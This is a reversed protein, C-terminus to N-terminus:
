GAKLARALDILDLIRAIYHDRIAFTRGEGALLERELADILRNLRRQHLGLKAQLPDTLIGSFTALLAGSALLGAVVSGGVLFPVGAMPTLALKTALAEGMVKGLSVAGPTIQHFFAAGTGAAILANALDAVAVRSGAYSDIARSLWIQFGAERGRAALTEAVEGLLGEVRRDTFLALALADFDSQRGPQRYPLQLFDHLLRWEIERGVDTQFFFKRAKLWDSPGQWGLRDAAAGATRAALFPVALAVNAPARWLDHGLAKRHLQLSARLSYLDQVFDEVRQRRQECYRRVADAFVQRTLAPSLSVSDLPVLDTM